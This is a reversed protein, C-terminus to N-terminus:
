PSVKVLRKTKVEGAEDSIRLFYAGEPLHRQALDLQLTQHGAEMPKAEAFMLQGAENYLHFLYTDPKPVDMEVNVQSLFPNPFFTINITEEIKHIPVEVEKEVSPVHVDSSTTWYCRTVCNREILLRPYVVVVTVLDIGAKLRFELPVPQQSKAWFTQQPQHGIFSAEMEMGDEEEPIEISFLGDLDTETGKGNGLLVTAFPLPEGTEDMIKGTITQMKQSFVATALLLLLSLLTTLKKKM